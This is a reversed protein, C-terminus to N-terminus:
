IHPDFVSFTSYDAKERTDWSSANGGKQLHTEDCAFIIPMMSDKAPDKVEYVNESTTPQAGKISGIVYRAAHRKTGNRVDV